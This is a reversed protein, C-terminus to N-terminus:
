YGKSVLPYGVLRGPEARIDLKKGNVLTVYCPCGSVRLLSVDPVVGYFLEYATNKGQNPLRNRLYCACLFVYPWFFKPLKSKLHISWAVNQLVGNYREVTSNQQATYMLSLEHVAGISMLWDEFWKVLFEKARDSRLCEFVFGHLQTM